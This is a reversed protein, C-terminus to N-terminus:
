SRPLNLTTGLGARHLAMVNEAGYAVLVIATGCNAKARRGDVFHFHPRGEMFCVADACRWVYDSFAVTETAAPILMIGNNHRTMMAMWQPREHRNFPPNLWVRGVWAQALGDDEITFHHRATDWPRAVPACPDLDFPGLARLIEPPTLWEDNLGITRQHQKM